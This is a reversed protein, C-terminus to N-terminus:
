NFLYVGLPDSNQKNLVRKTPDEGLVKENYKVTHQKWAFPDYVDEKVIDLYLGGGSNTQDIFSQLLERRRREIDERTLIWFRKQTSTLYCSM